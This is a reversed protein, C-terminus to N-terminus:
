FSATPANPATMGPLPRAVTPKGVIISSTRHTQGDHVTPPPPPSSILKLIVAQVHEPTGDTSADDVIILEFDQFTQALVSALAQDVYRNVGNCTPIIVSVRPM